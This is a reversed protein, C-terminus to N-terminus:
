TTWIKCCGVDQGGVFDVCFVITLAGVIIMEGGGAPLCPLYDFHEV